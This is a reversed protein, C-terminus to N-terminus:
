AFVFQDYVGLVPVKSILPEDLNYFFLYYMGIILFVISGLAVLQFKILETLKSRM